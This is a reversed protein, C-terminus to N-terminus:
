EAGRLDLETACKKQQAIRGARDYSADYSQESGEPLILHTRSRLTRANHRFLLDIRNLPAVM